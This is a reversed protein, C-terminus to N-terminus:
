ASGSPPEETPPLLTSPSQVPPIFFGPLEPSQNNKKLGSNEKGAGEEILLPTSSQPEVFDFANEQFGDQLLIPRVSINGTSTLGHMCRTMTRYDSTLIFDVNGAEAQGIIKTDNIIVRRGDTKDRQVQSTDLTCQMLQAAACAHVTNFAELEFLGSEIIDLPNGKFAYEAVVISSVVLTIDREIALQVYQAATSHDPKTEDFLSILCCTDLMIKM